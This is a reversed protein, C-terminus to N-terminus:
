SSVCSSDEHVTKTPHNNFEFFDSVMRLYCQWCGPVYAEFYRVPDGYSSASSCGAWESLATNFALVLFGLVFVHLIKM